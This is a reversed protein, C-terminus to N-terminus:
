CHVIFVPQDSFSVLWPYKTSMDTLFHKFNKKISVGDVQEAVETTLKEVEASNVLDAKVTVEKKVEAPKQQKNSGKKKGGGSPPAAEEGQCAALQKKLDLLVAVETDIVSKEAKKGKM